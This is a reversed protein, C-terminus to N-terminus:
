ILLLEFLIYQKKSPYYYAVCGCMKLSHNARCEIDCNNITYINFFKLTRENQYYCHRINPKWSSLSSATTRLGYTTTVHAVTNVAIYATPHISVPMDIPSHLILQLM